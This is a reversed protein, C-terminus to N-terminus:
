CCKDLFYINTYRIRNAKLSLSFRFGYEGKFASYLSKLYRLEDNLKHSDVSKGLTGIFVNKNGLKNNENVMLMSNMIELIFIDEKKLCSNNEIRSKLSEVLSPSLTQEKSLIEFSEKILEKLDNEFDDTNFVVKYTETYNINGKLQNLFKNFVTIAYIFDNETLDSTNEVCDEMDKLELLIDNVLRNTLIEYEDSDFMEDYIVNAWRIIEVLSIKDELFLEM